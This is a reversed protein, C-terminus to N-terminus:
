NSDGFKGELDLRSLCRYGVVCSRVDKTRWASKIAVEHLYDCSEASSYVSSKSGLFGRLYVRGKDAVLQRLEECQYDRSRLPTEALSHGSTVLLLTAIVISYASRIRM